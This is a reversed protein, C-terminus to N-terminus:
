EASHGAHRRSAAILIIGIPTLTLTTLGAWFITNLGLGIDVYPKGPAFAMMRLAAAALIPIPATSLLLGAIMGIRRKTIGNM